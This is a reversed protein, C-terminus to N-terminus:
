QKCKEVEKIKSKLHGLTIALSHYESGYRQIRNRDLNAARTVPEWNDPSRNDRNGDKCVLFRGAPVAGNVAEWNIIHVARWDTRKDGTDTVKRYLIGDKTTREAGIPRWTNSPKQGAKFQTDVSRGGAQWGKKGKNWTNHGKEFRGTGICAQQEPTRELGLTHRRNAVSSVTRGMLQAIDALKYHPYLEVLRADEEPTWKRPSLNRRGKDAASM